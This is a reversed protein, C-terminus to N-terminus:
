CLCSPSSFDPPHYFFRSFFRSRAFSSSIVLSLPHPHRSPLYDLPYHPLHLVLTSLYLRNSDPFVLPVHLLFSFSSPIHAPSIFFFLVSLCLPTPPLDPPKSLVAFSSPSSLPFAPGFRFPSSLSLSRGVGHVHTVTRGRVLRRTNILWLAGRRRADKQSGQKKRCPARHPRPHLPRAGYTPPPRTSFDITSAAPLTPPPSSPRLLLLLLFLYLLHLSPPICPTGRGLGVSKGPTVDSKKKARACSPPTAVRRRM